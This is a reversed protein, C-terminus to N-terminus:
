YCEGMLLIPIDQGYFIDMELLIDMENIDVLGYFWAGSSSAKVRFWESTFGLSRGPIAPTAQRPLPM